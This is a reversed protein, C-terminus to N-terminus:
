GISHHRATTLSCSVQIGRTFRRLLGDRRKSTPSRLRVGYSMQMLHTPSVVRSRRNWGQRFPLSDKLPASVPSSGAIESMLKVRSCDRAALTVDHLCVR